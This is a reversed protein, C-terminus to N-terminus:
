NTIPNISYGTASCVEPDSVPKFPAGGAREADLPTYTDWDGYCAVIDRSLSAKVKNVGNKFANMSGFSPADGTYPTKQPYLSVSTNMAPYKVDYDNTCVTEIVDLHFILPRLMFYVIRAYELESLVPQGFAYGGVITAAGATIARSTFLGTFENEFSIVEKFLDESSKVDACKANAGNTAAAKIKFETDLLNVVVNIANAGRATCVFPEEGVKITYLFDYLHV